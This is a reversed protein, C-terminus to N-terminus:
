ECKLLYNVKSIMGRIAPTDELVKVSNIRSLGLGKITARHAKKTGILSKTLSVKITQTNTTNM